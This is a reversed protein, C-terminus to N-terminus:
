DDCGRLARHVAVALARGMSIPVANGVLKRKATMTFPAHELTAPPLGQLDLMEALTYREGHGGNPRANCTHAGTVAWQATRKPGGPGPPKGSRTTVAEHRKREGAVTTRHGTRGDCSTATRKVKGSGGIAVPVSRPDSTVAQRAIRDRQGPAHGGGATVTVSAKPLELAALRIWRMLSPAEGRCEPWGFWFRRKRMQEEGLGDGADLWANDLVFCTVAYGAPAPWCDEPVLPTNEMLFWGPRAEEVCRTFEPILNGFRPELGRARVLNALSSFTQCPPGGIIGDFCGVPPHFSRIDRGWVVDPGAVVCFGEQEFAMGLADLGPFLSLVLTTPAAPSSGASGCTQPREAGGLSRGPTM